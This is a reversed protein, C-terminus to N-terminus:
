KTAGRPGGKRCRLTIVKTDQGGIDLVTRCAPLVERAGLGAAKIKSVSECDRHQSLLRRGYGTAVLRDHAVGDLLGRCQSVPDHTTGAVRSEVVQGHELVVLGITRSGIDIGASRM